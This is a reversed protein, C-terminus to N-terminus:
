SRYGWNKQVQWTHGTLPLGLGGFEGPAAERTESLPPMDQWVLLGLRDCWYHWRDPKIRVHKHAMNFGLQKTVEIDHKLAEDNPATYLSDPWFGQDLPGFQFLPANNLCLRLRGEGDKGLEFIWDPRRRERNQSSVAM